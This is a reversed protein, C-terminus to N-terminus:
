RKPTGYIYHDHNEAGDTPLSPDDMCGAFERLVDVMTKQESTPPEKVEPAVVNVRLEVGEAPKVGGEFVVQGDQMKARYTM